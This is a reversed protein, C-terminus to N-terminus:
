EEDVDEENSSDKIIVGAQIKTKLKKQIKDFKKKQQKLFLEEAELAKDLISILISEPLYGGPIEAKLDFFSPAELIRVSLQSLAFAMNQATTSALMPSISGILERYVRDAKLLDLPTLFCKVKFVGIYTEFSREDKASFEFTANSNEIVM